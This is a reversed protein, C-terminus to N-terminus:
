LVERLVEFAEAYRVGIQAGRLHALATVNEPSRVNPERRLQSEHLALAALKRELHDTVDVFATPAFPSAPTWAIKPQEYVLVRRVFPRVDAPHPRLATHAADFIARHDQDFDSRSPLYVTDPAYDAFSQEFRDILDRQPYTDLREHLREDEFWLEHGFDLLKAVREIEALRTEASSFGAESHQHSDSVVVYVVTVEDGRARLASITGGCGLVEDDPHPAVILHKM